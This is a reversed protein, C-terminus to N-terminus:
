AGARLKEYAARITDEMTGVVATQKAPPTGRTTVNTSAAKKAAAAREVAQKRTVEQQQAILKARVEPHAWTAKNYADDLDKARGSELLAAMDLKVAEYHEKGAAWAATEQAVSEMEAREAEEKEHKERLERQQVSEQLQRFQQQLQQYEPPVVPQGAAIREQVDPMLSLDVGYENAIALLTEVKSEPTGTKLQYATNFFDKIAHVANTGAARIMAEYPRIEADLLDFTDAKGKYAKLGNHFDAERRHVEAKIEPPLADWKAQAEGKWSTPAKAITPDVPAAQAEPAAPKAAPDGAVPKQAEPAVAEKAVFKGDPGRVRGAEDVIPEAKAEKAAPKAPKVEKAVEPDATLERFKARLTEDMTAEKGPEPTVETTSVEETSVVEDLVEDTSTDIVEGEIGM